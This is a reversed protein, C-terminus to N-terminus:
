SLRSVQFPEFEIQTTEIQNVVNATLTSKYKYLPLFFSDIKCGFIKPILKVGEM